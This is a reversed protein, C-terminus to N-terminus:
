SKKRNKCKEQVAQSWPLLDQPFERSADVAHKALEGILYEPYDYVKLDNAKATEAISYLVASAWANRCRLFYLDQLVPRDKAMTLSVELRICSVAGNFSPM